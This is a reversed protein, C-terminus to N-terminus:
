RRVREPDAQRTRNLALCREDRAALAADSACHTGAQFQAVKAHRAIRDGGVRRVFAHRGAGAHGGPGPAPREAWELLGQALLVPV